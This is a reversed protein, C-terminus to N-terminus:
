QGGRLQQELPLGRFGYCVFAHRHAKSDGRLAGINNVRDFHKEWLAQDGGVVLAPRDLLGANGAVITSPWFDWSTKRGGTLSSVCFVTPQAPMYFALLATRGYHTAMIFPEQKTEERVRNVIEGAHKGIERAGVLRGTPIFALGPVQALLDLRLVLVMLVCGVIVQAFICHEQWTRGPAVRPRAIRLLSAPLLFRHRAQAYALGAVPMLTVFGAISWNGEPEAIFSVLLYFLLVPAGCLVCFSAGRRTVESPTTPSERDRSSWGRSASLVRPVFSLAVVLAPGALAFLTVLFTLTWVPNYHYGRDATAQTPPIDGGQVGLHGLLHAITPWGERANWIAIPSCTMVLLLGGLFVGVFTTRARGHSFLVSRHLWMFAFLGPLLLLATYKYLTAVGLAVGCAALPWAANDRFGKWAFCAALAWCAVYPGDITNIIGLVVLAPCTAFAIAAVFGVDRRASIAFGLWGIAVTAIAMSFPAALRVGFETAGALRTTLWITWAIGPGKTYYSWDIHRSWDWYNAEDEVLSYPCFFRLYILRVVLLTAALALM